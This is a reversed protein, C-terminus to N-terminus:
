VKILCCITSGEGHLVTQCDLSRHGGLGELCSGTGEAKNEILTMSYCCVWLKRHTEKHLLKKHSHLQTEKEM